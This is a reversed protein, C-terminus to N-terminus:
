QCTTMNNCRSLPVSIIHQDFTAVIKGPKGNVSKIINLTKVPLPKADHELNIEEVNIFETSGNANTYLAIKVLRGDDTSSFCFFTVLSLFRSTEVRVRADAFCTGTGLFLIDYQKRNIDAVRNDVAISTLRSQISIRTFIPKSFLAPVADDMLSHSKVFNVTLDPLLRSDEVCM